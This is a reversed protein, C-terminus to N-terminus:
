GKINDSEQATKQAKHIAKIFRVACSPCVDNLTISTLGRLASGSNDPTIKLSYKDRQETVPIECGCIDCFVRTM